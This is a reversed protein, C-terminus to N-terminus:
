ILVTLCCGLSCYEGAACDGDGTCTVGDDCVYPPPMGGDPWGGDPEEFCMEPLDEEYRGPCLECEGCENVCEEDQVCRPCASEDEANEESCGDGILINIREDGITIECCGFCDCGNPTRGRCFEICEASVVCDPDDPELEGTLCGTRYRCRDDGSGSNGDYFCDQWVPDRNDGPIGTAFSGEDNDFPGTCEVDAGDVQGDGDNDIGDSCECGDPCLESGPADIGTADVGEGDARAGDATSGDTTSGDGTGGDTGGGDDDGGCALALALASMWLARKM